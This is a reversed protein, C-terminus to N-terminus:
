EEAFQAVAQQQPPIDLREGAKPRVLMEACRSLVSPPIAMNGSDSRFIKGHSFEMLWLKKDPSFKITVGREVWRQIAKKAEDPTMAPQVFAERQPQAAQTGSPKNIKENAQVAVGLELIRDMLVAKPEGKVWSGGREVLMLRLQDITNEGLLQENSVVM